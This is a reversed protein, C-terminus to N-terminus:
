LGKERIGALLRCLVGAINWADDAGRHHTGELPMGLRRLAAEMGRKKPNSFAMAYLLKANLHPGSQFAIHKEACEHTLQKRDYDGWSIWPRNKFDFEDLLIKVADALPPANEVDIPTLTTLGTCFPGIESRQPKVLIGRKEMRQLTTAAITAVGIEIIESIQGPPAVGGEWCTAELDIVNILSKSPEFEEIVRGDADLICRLELAM